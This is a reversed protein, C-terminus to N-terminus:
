FRKRQTQPQSGDMDSLLSLLALDNASTLSTTATPEASVPDAQDLAMHFIDKDGASTLTGGTPFDATFYFHGWVYLTTHPAGDVIGHTVGAIGANDDGTGGLRWAEAFIGAATDLKLVFGDLAGASTLEGGPASPDFDVTNSFSGGVYLTGSDVMARGAYDKGPGGFQRAWIYSGDAKSYKAVVADALTNGSSLIAQNGPAPDFDMPETVSGTLYLSNDDLTLYYASTPSQSNRISEVWVLSGSTSYRAMFLDTGGASTRSQTNPGLDFDVTNEFEGWVYLSSGDILLGNVVDRGKGGIQWASLFDGSSNLALIFGDSPSTAGKTATSTLSYKGPGPDFDVTGTFRGVVYVRDDGAVASVGGFDDAKGGIREVWLTTGTNADLKLVCIDFGGATRLDAVGDGTADTSGDFGVSFYVFSGSADLYPDGGGDQLSGGFRRAWLLTGDSAYKALFADNEGTSSLYNTPSSSSPGFDTTQFFTGSIYSNGASDLFVKPFAQDLGPGGIQGLWSALVTREELREIGLRNSLGRRTNTNM